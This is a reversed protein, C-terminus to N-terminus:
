LLAIIMIQLPMGGSTNSMYGTWEQWTWGESQLSIMKDNLSLGEPIEGVYCDIFIIYSEHKLNDQDESKQSYPEASAPSGWATDSQAGPWASSISAVPLCPLPRTGFRLPLCRSAPRGTRPLYALRM